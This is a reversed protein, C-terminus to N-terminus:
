RAAGVKAYIARLWGAQRETPQGGNVLRFTMDRVFSREKPTLRGKDNDRCYEAIILWTEDHAPADRYVVVTKPEAALAKALEHWDAGISALTRGLARVAAVVEGDRDSGLMPILKGIKDTIPALDSV